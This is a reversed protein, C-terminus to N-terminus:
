RILPRQLPTTLLYLTALGRFLITNHNVRLPISFGPWLPQSTLHSRVTAVVSFSITRAWCLMWRDRSSRRLRSSRGLRSCSASRRRKSTPWKYISSQTATLLSIPRLLIGPFASQPDFNPFRFFPFQIAQPLPPVLYGNPLSAFKGSADDKAITLDSSAVATAISNGSISTGTLIVADFDQPYKTTVGQTIASGASHGVGIVRKFSYPGFQSNRVSTVLAHAIEVQLPAQVVQLPDPHQSRGVGIRDYSFTAYGAAVAADVYSYGPAIDWYTSDLTDGHTLLQVTQIAEPPSAGFPFCLKGYITYTDKIIRQGGNVKAFLVSNDQLLEVLTETVVSQNAPSDLLIKFNNTEVSVKLNHVLCKSKGSVTTTDNSLFAAAAPAIVAANVGAFLAMASVLYYCDLLM